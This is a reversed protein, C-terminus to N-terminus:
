ISEHLIRHLFQRELLSTQPLQYRQSLNGIMTYILNRTLLLTLVHGRELTSDIELLISELMIECELCFNRGPISNLYEQGHLQFM